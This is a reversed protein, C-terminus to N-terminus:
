MQSTQLCYSVIAYAFVRRGGGRKERERPRKNSHFAKSNVEMKKIPHSATQKVCLWCMFVGLPSHFKGGLTKQQYHKLFKFHKYLLLSFKGKGNSKLFGFYVEAVEKHNRKLIILCIKFSVLNCSQEGCLLTMIKKLPSLSNCTTLVKRM